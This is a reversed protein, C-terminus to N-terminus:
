GPALHLRSVRRRGETPLYSCPRPSTPRTVLCMVWGFPLGVYPLVFHPGIQHSEVMLGRGNRFTRLSADISGQQFSNLPSSVVTLSAITHQPLLRTMPVTVLGLFRILLRTFRTDSVFGPLREGIRSPLIM